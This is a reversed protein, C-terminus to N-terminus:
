VWQEFNPHAVIVRLIDTRTIMGLLEKEESVVPIAGIREELLVRAIAPLTAEPSAVLVPHSVYPKITVNGLYASGKIGILASDVTGRSLDRDSLIGVLAGTRSQIPIHRFRKEKVLEWAQALSATLPMTVVPSAMIDRAVLRSSTSQSFAQVQRYLHTPSFSTPGKNSAQERSQNERGVPKIASAKAVKSVRRDRFVGAEYPLQAGGIDFVAFM